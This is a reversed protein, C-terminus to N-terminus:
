VRYNGSHWLEGQEFCARCRFNLHSCCSEFGFGSPEYVFAWGNPWVPWIISSHQSHTDTRHMQSYTRVMDRVRNLTFGCEATVQIELFEKNLVPATDSIKKRSKPPKRTKSKSSKWYYIKNQKYIYKEFYKNQM